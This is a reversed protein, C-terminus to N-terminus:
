LRKNKMIRDIAERLTAHTSTQSWKNLGKAYTTGDQDFRLTAVPEGRKGDFLVYEWGSTEVYGRNASRCLIKISPDVMAVRYRPSRYIISLNDLFGPFIYESNRKPIKDIIKSQPSDYVTGAWYEYTLSGSYLCIIRIRKGRFNALYGRKYLPVDYLYSTGVRTLHYRMYHSPFSIYKRRILVSKIQERLDERQKTNIATNKFKRLLSLVDDEYDDLLIAKKDIM